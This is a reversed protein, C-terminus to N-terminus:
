MGPLEDILNLNYKDALEVAKKYCEVNALQKACHADLGLIVKNGIEAPIRWFKETPYHKKESIGLINIELPIDMEKLAKCLRTMEWDYVSDLGQYNILDPHALYKFHGTKMGEIVSFM